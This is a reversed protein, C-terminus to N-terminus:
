KQRINELTQKAKAIFEALAKREAYLKFNPESFEQGVNNM